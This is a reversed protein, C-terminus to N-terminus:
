SDSTSRVGLSLAPIMKFSGLGVVKILVLELAAGIVTSLM